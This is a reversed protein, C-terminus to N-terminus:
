KSLLDVLVQNQQAAEMFAEPESPDAEVPVTTALFDWSGGTGDRGGILITITTDYDIPLVARMVDEDEVGPYGEALVFEPVPQEVTLGYDPILEESYSLHASFYNGGLATLVPDLLWSYPGLEGDPLAGPEVDLLEAQFERTRLEADENGLLVVAPRTADPASGVQVVLVSGAEVEITRVFAAGGDNVEVAEGITAVTRPQDSGCGVIFTGVVAACVVSRPGRTVPM